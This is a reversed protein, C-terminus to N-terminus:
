LVTLIHSYVEYPCGHALIPSLVSHSPSLSKFCTGNGWKSTEVAYLSHCVLFSKSTEFHYVDPAPFPLCFMVFVWVAIGIAPGDDTGRIPLIVGGPPPQNGFGGFGFSGGWTRVVCWM